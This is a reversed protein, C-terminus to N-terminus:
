NFIYMAQPNTKCFIAKRFNHLGKQAKCVHLLFCSILLKLEYLPLFSNIGQILELDNYFCLGEFIRGYSFECTRLWIARSIFVPFVGILLLHKIM